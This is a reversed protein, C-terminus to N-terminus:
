QGPRREWDRVPLDGYPERQTPVAPPRSSTAPETPQPVVPLRMTAETLAAGAPGEPQVGAFPVDGPRQGVAEPGAAPSTVPQPAPRLLWTAKPEILWRTAWRVPPSGLLFALATAALCAVALQPWEAIWDGIRGLLHVLLLGHLLYVYLTVEGLWTFATQGAPVLVLLAVTILLAVALIGARWLLGEINSDFVAVYGRKMYLASRPLTDRILLAAGLTGILVLVAAIRPLAGRTAAKFREIGEPTLLIGLAFFPLFGLTRDLVASGTGTGLGAVLSVAVAVLVPRRLVKLLPVMLRWAVLAFLFWLTFAPIGLSFQPAKGNVAAGVLSHLVDFILYPVLVSALLRGCQKASATFNRALYGSVLIFAPMHFAYIWTYLGRAAGSSSMEIVHGIVVLVILVARANDFYPDRSKLAAAPM